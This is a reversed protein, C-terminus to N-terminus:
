GGERNLQANWDYRQAAEKVESRLGNIENWDTILARVKKASCTLLWDGDECFAGNRQVCIECGSAHKEYREM